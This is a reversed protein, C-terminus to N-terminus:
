SRNLRRGYKLRSALSPSWSNDCTLERGSASLHIRRGPSSDRGSLDFQHRVAPSTAPPGTGAIFVPFEGQSDRQSPASM